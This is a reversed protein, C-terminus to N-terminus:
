DCAKPTQLSSSFTANAAKAVLEVQGKANIIWGQAEVIQAPASSIPVTAVASGSSNEAGMTYPRTDVWGGTNSGLTETPNPALGGRGSVRFEGKVGRVRGLINQIGTPNTFYVRQEKGVNFESFSHFLNGGRTARGDIRDAPLDKITVDHTVVSRENGLTEDAKIQAYAYDGGFLVLGGLALSTGLGLKWGGVCGGLTMGSM